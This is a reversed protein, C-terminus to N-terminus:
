FIGHMQLEAEISRVIHWTDKATLERGDTETIEVQVMLGNTEMTFFKASAHALACVKKVAEVEKKDIKVIM